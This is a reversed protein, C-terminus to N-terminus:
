LTTTAGILTGFGYTVTCTLLVVAIRRTGGQWRPRGTVHNFLMGTGFSGVTGIVIGWGPDAGLALPVLPTLSGVSFAIFSAVAAGLPSYTTGEAANQDDVSVYENVSMSLSGTIWGAIGLLLAHYPLAGIAFTLMALQTTAGDLYGLSAPRIWQNM